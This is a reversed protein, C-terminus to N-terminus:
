ESRGFDNLVVMAVGSLLPLLNDLAATEAVVANLDLHLFAIRDTVVCYFVEPVIGKVLQVNSYVDFRDVVEQYVDDCEYSPNAQPREM